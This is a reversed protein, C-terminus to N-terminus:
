RRRRKTRGGRRRRKTRGGRRRRKTRGGRRRRKTRGGRRRRKTRGGRRRRKTRGGIKKRLLGSFPRSGPGDLTPVGTYEAVITGGDGWDGRNSSSGSRTTSPAATSSGSEVTKQQLRRIYDKTREGLDRYKALKKECTALKQAMHRRDEEDDSVSHQRLSVKKAKASM